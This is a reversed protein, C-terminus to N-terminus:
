LYLSCALGFGIFWILSRLNAQDMIYAWGYILRAGVFGITLLNLTYFDPTSGLKQHAVLVGIAFLPFAEFSNLQANNARRQKGEAHSLYERPDHNNYPRNGGIKALITFLYPLLGAILIMFYSYDNTSLSTGM